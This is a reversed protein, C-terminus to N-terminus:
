MKRCKGKIFCFFVSSMDQTRAGPSLPMFIWRAGRQLDGLLVFGRVSLPLIMTVIDAIQRPTLGTGFEMPATGLELFATEFEVRDAGFELRVTGFEVRATGFRACPTEFEIRATGSLM